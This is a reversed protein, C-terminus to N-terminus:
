HQLFKMIYEYIGSISIKGSKKEKISWSGIFVTLFVNKDENGKTVIKAKFNERTLTALVLSYM